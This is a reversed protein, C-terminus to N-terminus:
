NEKSKLGCYPCFNVKWIIWEDSFEEIGNQAMHWVEFYMQDEGFCKNYAKGSCNDIKDTEFYATCEHHSPHKEYVVREHTMPPREYYDM